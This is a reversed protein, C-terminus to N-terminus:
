VKILLIRKTTIVEELELKKGRKPKVKNNDIHTFASQISDFSKAIRTKSNKIYIKKITKL